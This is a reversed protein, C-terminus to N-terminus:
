AGAPPTNDENPAGTPIETLTEKSRKGNLAAEMSYAAFDGNSFTREFSSIMYLGHKAEKTRTNIEYIKVFQKNDICEDIYEPFPDGETIIGELSLSRTVKGYDSGTKDKTDLEIEDAEASSSGDTQNFPRVVTEGLDNKIAVAYIFEEGRYEIGM